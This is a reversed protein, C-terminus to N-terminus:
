LAVAMVASGVAALMVAVSAAVAVWRRESREVPTACPVGAARQLVNVMRQRSQADRSLSPRGTPLVRRVHPRFVRDDARLRMVVTHRVVLIM